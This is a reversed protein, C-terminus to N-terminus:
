VGFRKVEGYLMEFAIAVHEELVDQRGVEYRCHVGFEHLDEVRM